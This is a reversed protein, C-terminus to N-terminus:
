FIDSISAASERRDLGSRRDVGLRRDIGSRRDVEVPVVQTRRDPADRRDGLNRRGSDSRNDLMLM